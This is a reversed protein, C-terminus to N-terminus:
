DVFVAHFGDAGYRQQTEVYNRIRRAYRPMRKAFPKWGHFQVEFPRSRLALHLAQWIKDADRGCSFHRELTAVFEDRSTVLSLDIEVHRSGEYIPTSEGFDLWNPQSPFDFRRLVVGNRDIPLTEVQYPIALEDLERLLSRLSESIRDCSVVPFGGRILMKRTGLYNKAVQEYKYGWRQHFFEIQRVTPKPVPKLWVCRFPLNNEENMM